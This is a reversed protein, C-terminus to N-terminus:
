AKFTYGCNYCSYTKKVLLLLLGIPFLLIVFLWILGGYQGKTIGMCKPCSLGGRIPRIHRDSQSYKPNRGSQSYPSHKFSKEIIPSELVNKNFNFGCDCKIAEPPNILGCSPCKM